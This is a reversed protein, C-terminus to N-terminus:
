NGITVRPHRKLFNVNNTDYAGPGADPFSDKSVMGTRFRAENGISGKAEGMDKTTKYAM